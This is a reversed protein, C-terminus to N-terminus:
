LEDHKYGWDEMVMTAGKNGIMMSPANTNVSVINPMISADIVRLNKVGHVRLRADVVAALDAKPGMKCTGVPHYVTTGLRSLACRWYDDSKFEFNECGPIKLDVIQPNHQKLPETELQKQAFKIGELMIEVDEPDEFYNPYILPKDHPNKSKLLIRGRSKPNLITPLINFTPSQQNTQMEIAAIEDIVGTVRLIEPLLYKDNKEYLVHHLQINPYNSDNRTNIFGVLNTIGIQAAAGEQYMFYRYLEDIVNDKAPVATEDISAYFGLYFEHDQLNEGVKLDQIVDIGLSQLHQKPGIGSLMLIQPSGIAGGSVIIENRAKITLKKDGVAVVVGSATNTDDIIIKEVVSNMAVVLNSREKVKGLFVKGANARIGKEVTQLSEFYGLNDEELLSPYGLVRASEKLMEKIPQQSNYLSLPLFGGRGYKTSNKLQEAQLDELEIFYKLVSEYDWGDNGDQAWQDYDRKNGRIYLMGNIASTGGLCKGRPWRCRKNKFGLCAKDSPETTFQWDDEGQQLSFLLSPIETSPSPYQGAEIVLVKWNSNESLKNAVVSGASGAGLVIFDFEDHDKLETRSDVPYKEKSSIQCKSSMLTNILTLFIHASVGSVSNPCHNIIGSCEM